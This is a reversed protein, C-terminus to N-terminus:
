ESPRTLDGRTGETQVQLYDKCTASEVLEGEEFIAAIHQTINQPTSQFLEAMDRQSLWVTDGEMRVEIRTSGDDTQYLLIEGSPEPAPAPLRDTM